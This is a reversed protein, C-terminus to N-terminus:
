RQTLLAKFQALSGNRFISSDRPGMGDPTDPLQPSLTKNNGASGDTYQWMVIQADTWGLAYFRDLDPKSVGYQAMWLFDCGMKDSIELEKLVQGSYLIIRTQAGLNQKIRAAYSSTCDIVRQTDRDLSAQYNPAPKPGDSGFELDVIPLLDGAGWGAQELISCYYDAQKQPDDYLELWHYAGLFISQRYRAGAATRAAKWQPVFWSKAPGFSVGDTAKLIVGSYTPSAMFDSWRPSGEGSYTDAILVAGAVPQAGSSPEAPNSPSSPSSPSSSGGGTSPTAPGSPTAPSSLTGPTSSSGGASSSGSARTVLGKLGLETQLLTLWFPAGQALLGLGLLLGFLSTLWLKATAGADVEGSCPHHYTAAAGDQCIWLPALEWGLPIGSSQLEAANQKQWTTLQGTRVTSAVPQAPTTSSPAAAASSPTATPTTAASPTAATTSTASAATLGTADAVLADRVDPEVALIRLMRIADVNFVLAAVTSLAVLYRRTTGSYSASTM